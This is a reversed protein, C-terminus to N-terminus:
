LHKLIEALAKANRAKKAAKRDDQARAAVVAVSTVERILESMPIFRETAPLPQPPVFTVEPQDVSPGITGYHRGRGRARGRPGGGSVISATVGNMSVTSATVDIVVPALVAGQIGEFTITGPSAEITEIFAGTGGSFTVAAANVFVTEVVAAPGGSFTVTAPTCDITAGGDVDISGQVGTFVLSGAAVNLAEDVKAQRGTFVLSGAAVNISEDIKAQAGTFTIVGAASVNLTEDIKAQKGTFVLSAATTNITVDAAASRPVWIRPTRIPQVPPGDAVTPSNVLTLHAGGIIDNEPSAVGFIPWYAVLDKTRIRLPSVGKALAAVEGATLAVQWIAAHGIRGVFFETNASKKLVGVNTFDPGAGITATTNNASNGGNLYATRSATSAFVGCAHQWTNISYGVTSDASGNTGATDQKHVRLPDGAIAGCARVGIFGSAANNGLCLITQNATSSTSYFWAALTLPEATLVAGTRDLYETSGNFLRAM